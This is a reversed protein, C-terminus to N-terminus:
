VARGRAFLERSVARTSLLETAGWRLGRGNARRRRDARGLSRGCGDEAFAVVKLRAGLRDAVSVGDAFAAGHREVVVVGAATDGGCADFGGDFARVEPAANQRHAAAELGSETAWV